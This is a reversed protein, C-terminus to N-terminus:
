NNIMLYTCRNKKSWGNHSTSPSDIHFMLRREERYEERYEVPFSTQSRLGLHCILKESLGGRSYNARTFGFNTVLYCDGAVIDWKEGLIKDWQTTSDDM